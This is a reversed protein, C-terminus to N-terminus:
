VAFSATSRPVSRAFGFTGHGLAEIEAIVRERLTVGRHDFAVAVRM